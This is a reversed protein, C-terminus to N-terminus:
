LLADNVFTNDSNWRGTRRRLSLERFTRSLRFIVINVPKGSHSVWIGSALTLLFLLGCVIIRTVPINM